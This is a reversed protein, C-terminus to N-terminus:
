GACRAGPTPVRNRAPPRPGRRALAAPAPVAARTAPGTTPRRTPSCTPRRRRSSASRTAASTTDQRHEALAEVTAEDVTIRRARHTKTDKEIDKGTVRGHNRRVYVVGNVLDIDSWRLALLEARRMGTVMALWVLTRWDPGEEWAASVLAAAEATTPPDPNPAPLRPIRALEAPNSAIWGWRQAATM